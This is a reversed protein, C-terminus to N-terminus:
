FTVGLSLGCSGNSLGFVGLTLPGAIPKTASVGYIPKMTTLDLGGLASLTVKSSSYTTDKSSEKDTTTADSAHTKQNEAFQVDDTTTTTTTKEGSPKTDEVIVVKKHTNETKSTSTNTVKKEVTVIKTEVKVRAPLTYRGIAVAVVTYGVVILIKYRLRM